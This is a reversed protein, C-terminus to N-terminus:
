SGPKPVLRFGASAVLLLLGGAAALPVVALVIGAVGLMFGLFGLAFLVYEVATRDTSDTYETMFVEFSSGACTSWTTRAGSRSM